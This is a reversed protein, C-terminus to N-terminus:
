TSPFPRALCAVADRDVPVEGEPSVVHLQRQCEDLNLRADIQPAHTSPLHYRGGIKINPETM